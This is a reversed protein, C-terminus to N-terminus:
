PTDIQNEGQTTGEQEKIPGRARVLSPAMCSLPRAGQLSLKYLVARVSRSVRVGRCSYGCMGGAIPVSKLLMCIYHQLINLERAGQGDVLECFM